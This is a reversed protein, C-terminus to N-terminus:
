QSNEGPYGQGARLLAEGVAAQAPARAENAVAAAVVGDGPQWRAEAYWFTNSGNHWFSGDPRLVWGMAYDGGFPPTHLTRWSEPRLYPSADRHAALYALLDALNMHVTAAPGLVRPNDIQQGSGPRMPRLGRGGALKLLLATVDASHGIPQKLPGAVGADPPGFGGSHLNLPGFVHQRVLDEWSQGTLAELMAGAVVFSCNSYEYTVEPPGVPKMQLAIQAFRRRQARIDEHDRLVFTALQTMPVDAPLGARNSLLHRLTTAAYSNHMRPAADGLVEGVRVDWSVMGRDVLQAVLTATISKSISGLHWSDSVEVAATRGVARSGSVMVQERANRRAFAAGIAPAGCRQRLDDLAASTLAAMPPVAPEGPGPEGRVLVLPSELLQKWRGEIRDSSTFQGTYTARISKFNLRIRGGGELSANGSIPQNNQDLSFLTATRGTIEFRLRLRTSGTTLVASWVGSAEQAQAATLICPSLLAASGILISRRTLM